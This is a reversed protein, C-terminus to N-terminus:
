SKAMWQSCHDDCLTRLIEGNKERLTGGEGCEECLFASAREASAIEERVKLSSGGDTYFRLTGFKQKIQGVKVGEAKCLEILPEYLVAWGKPAENIM